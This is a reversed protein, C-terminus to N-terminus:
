MESMLLDDVKLPLLRLFFDINSLKRAFTRLLLVLPNRRPTAPISCVLSWISLSRTQPLFKTRSISSWLSKPRYIPRCFSRNFCQNLKAYLQTMETREFTGIRASPGTLVTGSCSAATHSSAQPQQVDEIRQDAKEKVLDKQSIFFQRRWGLMLCKMSMTPLIWSCHVWAIPQCFLGTTKSLSAFWPVSFSWWEM